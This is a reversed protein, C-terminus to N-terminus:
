SNPNPRYGPQQKRLLVEMMRTVDYIRASFTIRWDRDLAAEPLRETESELLSLHKAPETDILGLESIHHRAQRLLHLIRKKPAGRLTFQATSMLDGGLWFVNGVNQWQPGASLQKVGKGTPTEDDALKIFDSPADGFEIANEGIKLRRIQGVLRAIQRRFFWALILVTGPWAYPTLATMVSTFEYVLDQGSM